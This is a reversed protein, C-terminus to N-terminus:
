ESEADRALRLTTTYGGDAGGNQVYKHTVGVVLYKGNFKDPGAAKVKFKVVIGPKYVPNGIAEAEGTIYGLSLEQLRAEALAVAEEKSWIPHDVTFTQTAANAKAAAAAGSAGLPSQKATARGVIETKTEPNWGRVEVAKTIAATTLRPTFSKLRYEGQKKAFIEFAIGSDNGLEPRKVFLDDGEQWVFCGLRAARLRAFELNSQNHQYVHKHTIEPGQWKPAKGLVATIIQKDTQDQFTKSVRGALMKHLWGFARVVLRSEGGAKYQPELGAVEGKFVVVGDQNVKLEFPDGANCAATYKHEDNRLVVLAMDPQNLDKEVVFQVIDGDPMESGAIKLDWNVSGTNDAM